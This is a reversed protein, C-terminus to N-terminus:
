ENSLGLQLWSVALHKYQNEEGVGWRSGELLSTLAESRKKQATLAIGKPCLPFVGAVIFLSKPGTKGSLPLIIQTAEGCCRGKRPGWLERPETKVEEQM